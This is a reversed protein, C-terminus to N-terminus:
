NPQNPRHFVVEYRQESLQYRYALGFQLYFSNNREKKIALFM